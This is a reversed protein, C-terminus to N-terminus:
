KKRTLELIIEIEVEDGVVATAAWSGTGVGYDNRNISVKSKVGAVKKGKKMPHDQIGLLTFPLKITKTVDRITLKGEIEFNKDDKKTFKTSVFEMKPYKKANFFDKSKLHGDRKEDKTNISTVDITFNAKSGELNEPDFKLTGEFKDFTGITPTFIHNVSFKVSSHSADLDWKPADGEVKVFAFSSLLLLLSFLGSLAFYRTNM